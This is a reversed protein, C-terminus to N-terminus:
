SQPAQPLEHVMQSIRDASADTDVAIEKHEPYLGSLYGGVSRVVPRLDPRMAPIRVLCLL